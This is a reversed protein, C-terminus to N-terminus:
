IAKSRTLSTKLSKLRVILKRSRSRLRRLQKGRPIKMARNKREM